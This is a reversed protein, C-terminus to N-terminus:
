CVPVGECIEDLRADLADIRELVENIRDLVQRNSGTQGSGQGADPDFGDAGTAVLWDRIGSELIELQRQLEDADVGTEVAAVDQELAGLRDNLRGLDDRLASAQLLVLVLVLTTALGLIILVPGLPSRM